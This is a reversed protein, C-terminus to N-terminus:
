DIWLRGALLQIGDGSPFRISVERNIAGEKARCVAEGCAGVGGLGEKQIAVKVGRYSRCADRDKPSSM